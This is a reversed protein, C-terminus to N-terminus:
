ADKTKKRRPDRGQRALRNLATSGLKQFANWKRPWRQQEARVLPKLLFWAKAIPDDWVALARRRGLWPVLGLYPVLRCFEDMKRCVIMAARKEDASWGDNWECDEDKDLRAFITGRADTFDGHTFVEQAKVWAEFRLQRIAFFIAATAAATAIASVM